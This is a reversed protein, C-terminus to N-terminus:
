KMNKDEKKNLAAEILEKMIERAIKSNKGFNSNIDEKMDKKQKELDRSIQTAWINQTM